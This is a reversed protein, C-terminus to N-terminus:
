RDRHRHSRVRSLQHHHVVDRGGDVDKRETAGTGKPLVSVIILTPDINAPPASVMATTITRVHSTLRTICSADITSMTQPSPKATTAQSDHSRPSPPARPTRSSTM